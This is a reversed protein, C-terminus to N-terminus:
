CLGKAVHSVGPRLKVAELCPFYSARWHLLPQSRVVSYTKERICHKTHKYVVIIPNGRLKKQSSLREIMGQPLHAGWVHFVAKQM